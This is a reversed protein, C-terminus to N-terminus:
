RGSIKQGKRIRVRGINKGVSAGTKIKVKGYQPMRIGGRM